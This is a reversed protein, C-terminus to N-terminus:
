CTANQYWNFKFVFIFFHLIYMKYLFFPWILFFCRWSFNLIKLFEETFKVLFCVFNNCINNQLFCPLDSQLYIINMLLDLLIHGVQRFIPSLIILLLFSRVFIWYSRQFLLQFFQYFFWICTFYTPCVESNRANVTNIFNFFM